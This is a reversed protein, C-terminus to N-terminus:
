AQEPLYRVGDVVVHRVPSFGEGHAYESIAARLVASVTIGYSAAMECIVEAQYPPVRVALTVACAKPDLRPQAM